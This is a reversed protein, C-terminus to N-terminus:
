PQDHKCTMSEEVLHCYFATKVFTNRVASLLDLKMHLHQRDHKSTLLMRVQHCELNRHFLFVCLMNLVRSKALM